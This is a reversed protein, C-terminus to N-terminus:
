RKDPTDDDAGQEAPADPAISVKGPTPPLIPFQISTQQILVAALSVFNGWITTQTYKKATELIEKDSMSVCVIGCVYSAGIKTESAETDKRMKEISFDATFLYAEESDPVNIKKPKSVTIDYRLEVDNEDEFTPDLDLAVDILSLGVVRSKKLSRKQIKEEPM